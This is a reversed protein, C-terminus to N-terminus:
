IRRFNRIVRNEKFYAVVIGKKEIIYDAPSKISISFAKIWCKGADPVFVVASCQKIEFCRACCTSISHSPPENASVMWASRQYDHRPIDKNKWVQLGYKKCMTDDDTSQSQNAPINGVRTSTRPPVSENLPMTNKETPRNFDQLPATTVSSNSLTFSPSSVNSANATNKLWGRMSLQVTSNRTEHRVSSYNRQGDLALRDSNIKSTANAKAEPQVIPTVTTTFNRGHSATTDSANREGNLRERHRTRDISTTNLSSRNMRISLSKNVVAIKVGALTSTNGRENTVNPQVSRLIAKVFAKLGGHDHAGNFVAPHEATGRFHLVTPLETVGYRDALKTEISADVRFFKLVKQQARFQESAIVYQREFKKCFECTMSYFNVITHPVAKIESDFHNLELRKVNGFQPVANVNKTTTRPVVSATQWKNTALTTTRPTTTQPTTVPPNTSVTDVSSSILEGQKTSHPVPDSSSGLEGKGYQTNEEVMDITQSAAKVPVNASDKTTGSETRPATRKPAKKGVPPEKTEGMSSKQQGGELVHIKINVPPLNDRQASPTPTIGQAAAVKELLTKPVDGNGGLYVVGLMGVLFVM